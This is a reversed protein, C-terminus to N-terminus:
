VIRAHIFTMLLAFSDGKVDRAKIVFENLQDHSVQRSQDSDISRYHDAVSWAKTAPNAIFRPILHLHSHQAGEEFAIAYVHDCQSLQKVLTSADQTALGWNTAEQTSFGIPGSCHRLLDLLLWIVLPAPVPYHCLVWLDDRYIEYKSQQDIDHHLDCIPCNLM